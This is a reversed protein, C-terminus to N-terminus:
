PTRTCRPEDGEAIRRDRLESVIRLQGRVLDAIDADAHARLRPLGRKEDIVDPVLAGQQREITLTARTRADGVERILRARDAHLEAHVESVTRVDGEGAHPLALIM